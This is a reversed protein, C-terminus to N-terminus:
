DLDEYDSFDYTSENLRKLDDALIAEPTTGLRAAAAKAARLYRPEGQLPKGAEELSIGLRKARRAIVREFATSM